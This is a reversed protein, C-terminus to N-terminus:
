RATAHQANAAAAVAPAAAQGSAEEAGQVAAPGAAARSAAVKLLREEIAPERARRLLPIHRASAGPMGPPGQQKRRSDGGAGPQLADGALKDQVIHLLGARVM